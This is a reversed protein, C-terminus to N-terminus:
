ARGMAGCYPSVSLERGTEPNIGLALMRAFTKALIEDHSRKKEAAEAERRERFMKQINTEM